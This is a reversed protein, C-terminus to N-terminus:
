QDVAETSLIKLATNTEAETLSCREPYKLNELAKTLDHGRSKVVEQNLLDEIVLHRVRTGIGNKAMAEDVGSILEAETPGIVYTNLMRDAWTSFHKIRKM